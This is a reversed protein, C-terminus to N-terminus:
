LLDLIRQEESEADRFFQQMFDSQRRRLAMAAVKRIDGKSAQTRGDAAAYARAAEFLTIEARTSDIGLQQVLSLGYLEAQRSLTTEPLLNQAAALEQRAAQTAERYAGILAHPNQKFAAAHKYAELRQDPDQLGRVIVRLGFRDMMQPRLGGEEPNMCGAIIFRSRFTADVGGRHVEFTGQSAADLIVDAIHNSILNIEDVFLLNRDALALIGRKLRLRNHVAAREDFGGVVDEIRASLPLEVLRAQDTYTLPDGSAYRVACDPCISDIGGYTVDEPLCGYPCRSRPVDPLLDVLSRIATTKATGRPGILLVGGILPNIVALLLALKMEEQGILALFPYTLQPALGRDEGPDAALFRKSSVRALLETLTTVEETM